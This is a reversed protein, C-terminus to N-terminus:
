RWRILLRFRACNDRVSALRVKLPKGEGMDFIRFIVGFGSGEVAKYHGDRLIRGVGVTEIERSNIFPRLATIQAGAPIAKTWVTRQSCVETRLDESKHSAAASPAVLVLASSLVLLLKV